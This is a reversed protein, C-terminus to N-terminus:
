AKVRATFSQEIASQFIRKEVSDRFAEEFQPAMESLEVDLEHKFLDIAQAELDARQTAVVEEDLKRFVSYTFADWEGDRRVLEHDTAETLLEAVTAEYKDDKRDVM